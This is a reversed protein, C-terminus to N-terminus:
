RQVGFNRKNVIYVYLMVQDPPSTNIIDLNRVASRKKEFM